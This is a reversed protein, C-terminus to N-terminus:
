IKNRKRELVPLEEKIEQLREKYKKMRINYVLGSIKNERFRETQTKKMLDNLVKEETKMKRIKNTLLKKEFRKNTFYGIIGLVILLSIIQIWYRQFFNKAGKKIGSLTSVETKEKELALNFDELLREADNYREESFAIKAQELINQIEKSLEPLPYSIYLGVNKLEMEDQKFNNEEVFIKDMLLFATEKRKQIDKTYVLVDEYTIDQWKILRLANRAEQKEKETSNVDERLISAYKAQEFVRRAEILSDNMYNVSFNNEQMEKIISESENIAQLAAEKTISQNEEQQIANESSENYAVFGIFNSKQTNLIFFSIGLVLLICLIIIILEQKM